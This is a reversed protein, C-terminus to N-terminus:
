TKNDRAERPRRPRDRLFAVIDVLTAPVTTVLLSYGIGGLVLASRPPTAGYPRQAIMDLDRLMLYTVLPFAVWAAVRLWFPADPWRWAMVSYWAIGAAAPVLM